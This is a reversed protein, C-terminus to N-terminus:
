QPSKSPVFLPEGGVRFAAIRDATGPSLLWDALIGAEAHALSPHKEASLVVVAYHNKLDEAGGLLAALQTKARYSLRTGRDTLVYARKEDAITLTPGMGQGSRLYWAGGPTIGAKKWLSQERRHTGSDDGRSVFASESAAIARFADAASAAKAVGAPDSPPGAIEFTNWMLDRRERGHGSSVFEDEGKRDHVVLLDANGDRAQQFAAGTGVAIVDVAIGSEKTFEPLLADMLGSDRVSTTTVLRVRRLPAHGCAALVTAFLIALLRRM